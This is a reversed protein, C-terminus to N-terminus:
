DVVQFNEPFLQSFQYSWIVIAESSYMQGWISDARLDDEAERLDMELNAVRWYVESALLKLFTNLYNEPGIEKQCNYPNLVIKKITEGAQALDIRVQMQWTGCSVTYEQM